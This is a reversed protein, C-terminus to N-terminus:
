FEGEYYGGEFFELKGKGHYKGQKFDGVYVDDDM